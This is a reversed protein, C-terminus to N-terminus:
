YWPLTGIPGVQSTGMRASWGTYTPQMWTEGRDFSFYVGSDGIGPTFSTNNGAAPANDIEDNAGAVMVNPDIPNVAIVPENQKNVPFPSPGTGTNVLTDGSVYGMAPVAVLLLLVLAALALLAAIPRTRNM